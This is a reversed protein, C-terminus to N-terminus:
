VAGLTPAFARSDLDLIYRTIVEEELKTLKKSNPECDRRATIGARRNQLTSRAINFTSAARRESQIQNQSIASIALIVDVENYSQQHKSPQPM